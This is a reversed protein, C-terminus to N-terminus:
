WHSVEGFYAHDTCAMVQKMMLLNLGDTDATQISTSTTPAPRQQSFLSRLNRRVDINTPQQARQLAVVYVQIRAQTLVTYARAGRLSVFFDSVAKAAKKDAATKTKAATKRASAVKKREAKLARTSSTIEKQLKNLAAEAKAIAPTAAAKKATKRPAKKVQPM